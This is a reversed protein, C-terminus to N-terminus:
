NTVQRRVQRTQTSHQRLKNEFAKSIEDHEERRMYYHDTEPDYALNCTQLKSDVDLIYRSSDQEIYVNRTLSWDQVCANAVKSISSLKGIQTSRVRKEM